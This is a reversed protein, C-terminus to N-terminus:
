RWAFFFLKEYLKFTKAMGQKKIQYTLIVKLQSQFLTPVRKVIALYPQIFGVPPLVLLKCGYTVLPLFYKVARLRM